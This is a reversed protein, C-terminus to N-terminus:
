SYRNRMREETTLILLVIRLQNINDLIIWSIVRTEWLPNSPSMVRSSSTRCYITSRPDIGTNKMESEEITSRWIHTTGAQQIERMVYILMQPELVCNKYNKDTYIRGVQGIVTEFNFTEELKDNDTLVYRTADNNPQHNWEDYLVERRIKFSNLFLPINSPRCSSDFVTTLMNILHMPTDLWSGRKGFVNTKGFVAPRGHCAM